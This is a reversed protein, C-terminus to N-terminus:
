PQSTQNRASRSVRVFSTCRTSSGRRGPEPRRRRIRRGGCGPSRISRERSSTKLKRPLGTRAYSPSVIPEASKAAPCRTKERLKLYWRGRPSSHTSPCSHWNCSAPRRRAWRGRRRPAPARRPPPRAASRSRSARGRGRRADDVLDALRERRDAEVVARQDPRTPQPGHVLLHQAVEGAEAADVLVAPPRPAVVGLVAADVHEDDAAPAGPERRRAAAAAAPSRTSSTSSFTAGTRRRATRPRRARVRADADVLAPEDRDLGAVQQQAHARLPDHDRGARDLLREDEGAVVEDAHHEGVARQAQDAVEASLGPSRATTIAASARPM